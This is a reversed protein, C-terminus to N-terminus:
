EAAADEGDAPAGQEPRDKVIVVAPESAVKGTWPQVSPSHLARTQGATSDNALVGRITYAGLPADKPFLFAGDNEGDWHMYRTRGSELPDCVMTRREESQNGIGRLEYQKGSEHQAVVTVIGRYHSLPLYVAKKGVNKVAFMVAQRQVYGARSEAGGVWVQIGGVASSWKRQELMALHKKVEELQKVGLLCYGHSPRGDPMVVWIGSDGQAYRHPASQMAFALDHEIRTVVSISITKENSGKLAEDVSITAKGLQMQGDYESHIGDIGTIKGVVVRDALDLAAEIPLAWFGAYAPLASCIGAIALVFRQCVAAM